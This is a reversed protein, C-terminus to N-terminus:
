QAAAVRYRTPSAFFTVDAYGAHVKASHLVGAPIFYSEGRGYTRTETGITLEIRGEVVVGWQAEHAHPPVVVDDAFQMFLVQHDSGQSLFAEAGALPLLARPLRTIPEPFPSTM